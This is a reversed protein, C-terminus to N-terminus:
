QFHCYSMYLKWAQKKMRNSMQCPINSVSSHVARVRHCSHCRPAVKAKDGAEARGPVAGWHQQPLSSSHRFGRPPEMGM